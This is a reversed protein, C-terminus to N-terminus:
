LARCTWAGKPPKLIDPFPRSIPSYPSFSYVSTFVTVMLIEGFHWYVPSTSVSITGSSTQLFSSSCCPCQCFRTKYSPLLKLNKFFLKQSQVFFINKYKRKFWLNLRINANETLTALPQLLSDTTRMCLVGNKIQCFSADNAYIPLCEDNVPVGEIM